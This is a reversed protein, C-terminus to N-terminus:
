ISRLTRELFERNARANATTEQRTAGVRAGEIMLPGSFGASKLQVFLRQFGVKGAGFQIMVEGNQGTCDKACFGTVYPAIPELEVLPDKGTYNIINGADYWVKFNPQGVKDLCRRIEEAAGCVGGHPKLVVQLGLKAAHVAADSMLRYYDEYEAPRSVGFTLLYRLELRAANEIQKRVDAKKEDLAGRFRITTVNATLGRRQIRQKLDRLYDPTAAASTFPESKQPSMLGALQYGAAVMGDLADDFTWQRWPRNFGGIPWHVTEAALGTAGPAGASIVAAVAATQLFERRTM